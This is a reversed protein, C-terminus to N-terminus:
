WQWSICDGAYFHPGRLREETVSIVDSDSVRCLFCYGDRISFAYNYATSAQSALACPISNGKMTSNICTLFLEPPGTTFKQQHIFSTALHFAQVAIVYIKFFMRNSSLFITNYNVSSYMRLTLQFSFNLHIQLVTIVLVFFSIDRLRVWVVCKCTM